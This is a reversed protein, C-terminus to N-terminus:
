KKKGGRSSLHPYDRSAYSERDWSVRKGCWHCHSHGIQVRKGCNPCVYVGAAIKRTMEPREYQETMRNLSEVVKEYDSIIDMAETLAVVINEAVETEIELVGESIGRQYTSQATKLFAILELEKYHKM